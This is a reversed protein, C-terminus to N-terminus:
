FLPDLQELRAPSFLPNMHRTIPLMMGMMGRNHHNRTRGQFIIFDYKGLRHVPRFEEKQQSRGNRTENLQRFCKGTTQNM